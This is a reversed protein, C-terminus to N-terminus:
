YEVPPLLLSWFKQKYIQPTSHILPTTLKGSFRTPNLFEGVRIRSRRCLAFVRLCRGCQLVMRGGLEAVLWFLQGSRPWRSSPVDRRLSVWLRCGIQFTSSSSGFCDLMIDVSSEAHLVVGSFSCQPQTWNSSSAARLEAPYPRARWYIQARADINPRTM